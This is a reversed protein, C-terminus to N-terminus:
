GVSERRAKTNTAQLLSLLFLDHILGSADRTVDLSRQYADRRDRVTVFHSREFAGFAAGDEPQHNVAFRAHTEDRAPTDWPQRGGPNWYRIRQIPRRVARSLQSTSM